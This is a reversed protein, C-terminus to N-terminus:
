LCRLSVTDWLFEWSGVGFTGGGRCRGNLSIVGDDMWVSVGSGIGDDGIGGKGERM